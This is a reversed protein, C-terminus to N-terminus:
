STSGLQRDHRVAREDQRLAALLRRSALVRRLASARVVSADPAPQRGPRPVRRGDSPLPHPQTVGGIRYGEHFLSLGYSDHVPLGPPATAHRGSLEPRLRGAFQRVHRGQGDVVAPRGALGGLRLRGALRGLRAGTASGSAARSRPGAFTKRSFSTAARRSGRMRSGLRSTRHGAYRQEYLVPWPGEGPPFYLAGVIRGRGTDSNSGVKRCGALLIFRRPSALLCSAALRQLSALCFAALCCSDRVFDQLYPTVDRRSGHLISLRLMPKWGQGKRVLRTKVELGFGEGGAGRGSYM